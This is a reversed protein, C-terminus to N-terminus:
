FGKRGVRGRTRTETPYESHVGTKANMQNIHAHWQTKAMAKGRSKRLSAKVGHAAALGGVGVGIAADRYAEHIGVRPRGRSLGGLTGGAAYGAVGQAAGRVSAKVGRRISGRM